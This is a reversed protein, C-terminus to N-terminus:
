RELYRHLTFDGVAGLLSAVELLSTVGLLSTFCFRRGSWTRHWEFYLSIEWQELNHHRSGLLSAAGLPSTFRFRRELYCHRELCRHFAFDGLAGLLSTEGLLSAAGLLSTYRIRRGSWASIDSWTAIYFSIYSHRNSELFTCLPILEMIM